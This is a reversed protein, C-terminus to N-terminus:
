FTEKIYHFFTLCILFELIISMVYNRDRLVQDNLVFNLCMIFEKVTCTVDSKLSTVVM